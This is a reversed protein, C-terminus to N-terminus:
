SEESRVLRHGHDKPIPSVENAYEVARAAVPHQDGLHAALRRIWVCALRLRDYEVLGMAQMPTHCHPCTESEHPRLGLLRLRGCDCEWHTVHTVGSM